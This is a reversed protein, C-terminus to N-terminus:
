KLGFPNSDNISPPAVQGSVIAKQWLEGVQLFAGIFGALNEGNLTSLPYKQYLALQNTQSLYCFIAPRPDAQGNAKLTEQFVNERFKGPPVEVIKSFIWCHEQTPDLQLQITFNEHIRLSCAHSQDMQL